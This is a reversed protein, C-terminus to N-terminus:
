FMESYCQGQDAAFIKGELTLVPIGHALPAVPSGLAGGTETDTM